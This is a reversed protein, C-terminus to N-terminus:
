SLAHIYAFTASNIMSTMFSYSHIITHWSDVSSQIIILIYMTIIITAQQISRTNRELVSVQIPQWTGAYVNSRIGYVSISVTQTQTGHSSWKHSSFEYKGTMSIPSNYTEGLIIISNQM